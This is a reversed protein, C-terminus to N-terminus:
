SRGAKRSFFLPKKVYERLANEVLDSLSADEDVARHKVATWLSQPLRMTVRALAEKKTKM